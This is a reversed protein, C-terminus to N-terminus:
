EARRAFAEQTERMFIQAVKPGIGHLKQLRKSFEDEDGSSELMLLLSGDYM